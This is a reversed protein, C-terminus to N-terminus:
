PVEGLMNATRELLEVLEDSRAVGTGLFKALRPVIWRPRVIQAIRGLIAVAARQM